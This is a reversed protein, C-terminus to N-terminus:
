KKAGTNIERVGKQLHATSRKAHLIKETMEPNHRNVRKGEHAFEPVFIDASKLALNQVFLRLRDINM